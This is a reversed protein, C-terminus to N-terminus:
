SYDHAVPRVMWVYASIQQPAEPSFKVKKILPDSMVKGRKETWFAYRMDLIPITVNWGYPLLYSPFALLLASIGDSINKFWQVLALCCGGSKPNHLCFWDKQTFAVKLQTKYSTFLLMGLEYPLIAEEKWYRGVLEFYCGQEIRCNM